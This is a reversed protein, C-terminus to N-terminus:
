ADRPPLVPDDGLGLSDCRRVTFNTKVRLAYLFSEALEFAIAIDEASKYSNLAHSM